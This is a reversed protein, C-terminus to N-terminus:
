HRESILVGRAEIFPMSETGPLGNEFPFSIDDDRVVPGKRYSVYKIGNRKFYLLAVIPFFLILSRASRDRASSLIPRRRLKAVISALSPRISLDWLYLPRAQRIAM